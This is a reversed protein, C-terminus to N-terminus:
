AALFSAPTNRPTPANDFRSSARSTMARSQRPRPRQRSVSDPTRDGSSSLSWRAKFLPPVPVPLIRVNDLVMRAERAAIGPRLAQAAPIVDPFRHRRIKIGPRTQPLPCLRVGIPQHPLPEAQALGEPHLPKGVALGEAQAGVGALGAHPRPPTLSSM